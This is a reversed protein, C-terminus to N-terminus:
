KSAVKKLAQKQNDFEVGTGGGYIPYSSSNTFYSFGEIQMDIQKALERTPAIIITNVKNDQRTKTLKDLIPLVFAATKGTGTQACAILDRGEQIIPIAQKQIPTAKEFGMMDLGEQLENGFKFTTFNM